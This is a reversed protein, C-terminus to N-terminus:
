SAADGEGREAAGQAGGGDGAGDGVSKPSLAMAENVAALASSWLWPFLIRSTEVSFQNWVTQWTLDGADPGPHAIATGNGDHMHWAACYQPIFQTLIQNIKLQGWLRAYMGLGWSSVDYEIWCDKYGELACVIRVKQKEKEPM